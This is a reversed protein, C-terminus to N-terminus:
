EVKFISIATELEKAMANLDTSLNTLIEASAIQEETSASVEQSTAAAEESVSSINEMSSVVNEKLGLMVEVSKQMDSMHSSLNSMSGSITNFSNETETVALMQEKLIKSTLNAKSVTDQTKINISKIISDIMISADKSQEALKKVEEAVVAFGRGAEGARAAEIAANLSLLNTQEAIGVILKVIKTIEKMDNSLSNIDTIIEETSSNTEDAKNNLIGVNKKAQNSLSNTDTIIHTVDGLDDIVKSIGKSLNDMYDVSKSVEMAQDSAGKAVEQLTISIQESTNLSQQSSTALQSASSLVNAVSQGVQQILTKFNTIMDTFNHIVESIEDKGSDGVLHTLDGKKAQRMSQVLRNLPNSISISILMSIIIAIGLCVSGIVLIKNRILVAASNIFSMPITTVIFWDKNTSIPNYLVLHKKNDIETEMIFKQQENSNMKEQYDAIIRQSFDAEIYTSAKPLKEKKNSALVM